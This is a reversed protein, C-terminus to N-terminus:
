STRQYEAPLEYGVLAGGYTTDLRVTVKPGNSAVEAGDDLRIEVGSSKTNETVEVDWDKAVLVAVGGLTTGVDVTLGEPAPKAERLDVSAGGMLIRAKVRRLSESRVIFEAGNWFTYLEVDDATLDPSTKSRTIAQSVAWVLSNVILFGLTWKLIRKM